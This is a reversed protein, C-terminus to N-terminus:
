VSCLCQSRLIIMKLNYFVFINIEVEPPPLVMSFSLYLAKAKRCHTLIIAIIVYQKVFVESAPKVGYEVKHLYASPTIVKVTVEGGAGPSSTGLDDVTLTGKLAM